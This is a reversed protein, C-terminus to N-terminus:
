YVIILCFQRDKFPNFPLNCLSIVQNNMLMIIADNHTKPFQKHLKTQYRSILYFDLKNHKINCKIQIIVNYSYFDNM